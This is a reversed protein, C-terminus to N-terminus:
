FPSDPTQRSNGGKAVPPHSPNLFTTEFWGISATNPIKEKSKKLRESAEELKLRLFDKMSNAVKNFADASEEAGIKGTGDFTVV